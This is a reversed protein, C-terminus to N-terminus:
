LEKKAVAEFKCIIMILRHIKIQSISSIIIMLPCAPYPHPFFYM